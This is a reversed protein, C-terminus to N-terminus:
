KVEVEVAGLRHNLRLHLTRTPEDWREEDASVLLYVYARDDPPCVPLRASDFLFASMTVASVRVLPHVWSRNRILGPLTRPAFERAIFPMTSSCVGRSPEWKGTVSVLLRSRALAHNEKLTARSAGCGIDCRM